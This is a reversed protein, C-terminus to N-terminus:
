CLLSIEYYHKNQYGGLFFCNLNGVILSCINTCLSGSFWFCHKCSSNIKCTPVIVAEIPYVRHSSWGSLHEKLSCKNNTMILTHVSFTHFYSTPSCMRIFKADLASMLKLPPYIDYWQKLQDDRWKFLLQQKAHDLGSYMNKEVSMTFWSRFLFASANPM